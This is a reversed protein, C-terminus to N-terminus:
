RQLSPKEGDDMKAGCNSCYHMPVKVKILEGCNTCKWYAGDPFTYGRDWRAHIVPIAETKMREIADELAKLKQAKSIENSDRMNIYIIKLWNVANEKQEKEM